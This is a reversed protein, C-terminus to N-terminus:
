HADAGTVYLQHEGYALYLHLKRLVNLGITMPQDDLPTPGRIADLEVKSTRDKKFGADAADTALTILPNNVTVNHISLSKFRYKYFPHASDGSNEVGPTDSTLGFLRYAVNLYLITTTSGTDVVADIDNGDLNPTIRIHDGGSLKFPITTYSKAWYVVKGECHDPSFLNLKKGAFDFDVDFARLIDPGLIGVVEENASQGPLVLM